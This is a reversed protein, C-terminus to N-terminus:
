AAAVDALRPCLEVAAIAGNTIREAMLAHVESIGHRGTAWGSVTGQKVGLATATQEQTGFHKILRSIPTDM